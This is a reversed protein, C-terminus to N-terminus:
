DFAISILGAQVFGILFAPIFLLLRLPSSLMLM